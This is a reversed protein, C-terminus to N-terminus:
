IYLDAIINNYVQHFNVHYHDDHMIEFFNKELTKSVCFQQQTDIFNLYYVLNENMFYSYLFM